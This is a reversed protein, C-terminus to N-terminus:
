GKAILEEIMKRSKWKKIQQEFAIADAKEEFSKSYKLEWDGTKGTFGKHRTNHRRLREQLFDSTFGVYYANQKISYIIYTTYM